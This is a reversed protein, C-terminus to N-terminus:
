GKIIDENKETEPVNAIRFVVIIKAMDTSEDTRM